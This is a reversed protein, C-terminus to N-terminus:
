EDNDSEQEMGLLKKYFGMSYAEAMEKMRINEALFARHKQLCEIVTDLSELKSFNMMVKVDYDSIKDGVAGSMTGIPQPDDTQVFMFGVEDDSQYSGMLIDGEGFKLYSIGRKDDTVVPM